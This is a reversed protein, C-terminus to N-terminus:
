KMIRGLFTLLALLLSLFLPITFIWFISAGVKEASTAERDKKEDFISVIEKKV